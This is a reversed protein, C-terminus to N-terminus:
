SLTLSASRTSGDSGRYRFTLSTNSTAFIELFGNAWLTTSSSHIKTVFNGNATYHLRVTGAGNSLTLTNSATSIDLGGANGGFGGLLVNGDVNGTLDYGALYGIAINQSSGNGITYLASDGIAVNQDGGTITTLTATGVAVNNSGTGVPYANSGVVSNNTGLVIAGGANYGIVTNDTGTTNADLSLSGVATNRVGTVTNVALASKGVATNTDDGAGGRGVNVSNVVLTNTAAVFTFDTDTSTSDLATQFLVTGASGGQVSTAISPGTPGTNGTRNFDVVLQQSGSPLTGSVYTVALEVWGVNDTLGTVAFITATATSNLNSKFYIYGKPSATGDDWTLLYSEVNTGEATVDDIAIATVSGVIANNYRVLGSGPDAMTTTTSFNYRLGAKDGQPGTPGTPGTPGITGAYGSTVIYAGTWNFATTTASYVDTVVATATYLIYGEGPATTIVTAWGAPAAYTGGTWTYTSAGSISPTTLAWQFVAPRAVQRGDPGTPGTPGIDGTRSFETVLFELDTPLTGALHTVILEVWSTHDVVSTLNFVVYTSDVDTNSKFIIQGKVAPQGDDWSLFYNLLNAGEYTLASIAITTVSAVSANNFRMLGMGPDAMTVDTSFTYRLGGKDGQVGTPGTPGGFAGTPGVPGTPGIGGILSGNVTSGVPLDVIGSPLQFVSRSGPYTCFIEKIGVSFNVINNNNSSSIIISRTIQQTTLNFQGYGVEYEGIAAETIVAYYTFNSDGIDNFPRFGSAAGQLQFSGTGVTTTTEKVRDKLVLAM